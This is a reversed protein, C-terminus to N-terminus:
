DIGAFYNATDGCVEHHALVTLSPTALYRTPIAETLALKAWPQNQIFFIPTIRAAARGSETQIM